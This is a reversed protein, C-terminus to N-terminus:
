DLIDFRESLWAITHAGGEPRDFGVSGSMEVVIIGDNADLTSAVANYAVELNSARVIWTSELIKRRDIFSEIKGIILAYDASSKEARLDYSVLYYPM